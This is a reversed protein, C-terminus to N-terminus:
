SGRTAARSARHRTPGASPTGSPAVFTVLAATIEVVLIVPNRVLQRPDLKRIAQPLAGRVLAPDLIGRNRRPAGGTGPATTDEERRARRTGSSTHVIAM